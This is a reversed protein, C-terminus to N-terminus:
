RAEGIDRLARLALEYSLPGFGAISGVCVPAILSQRRFPERGHINSLHV